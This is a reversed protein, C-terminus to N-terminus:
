YGVYQSGANMQQVGPVNSVSGYRSVAYRVGAIINDVPNRINDHGPLKNADFTPQITQMLGISPTGAQANSDWNNQANPDGSSEHQIIRAIDNANMKDMPVGSAALAKQAESIWQGVNGSPAPQDSGGPGQAGGPSGGGPSPAPGPAPSPGPAPAPAPAPSPTSSGGGPCGGGGSQSSDGGGSSDSGGSGDGGSPSQGGQMGGLLMQIMSMMLRMIQMIMGMMDGGGLGGGGMQGPQMQGYQSFPSDGAQASVGGTGSTGQMGLGGMPSGMQGQAGNLNYPMTMGLGAGLASM